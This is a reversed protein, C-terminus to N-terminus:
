YGTFKHIGPPTNAEHGTSENDFDEESTWPSNPLIVSEDDDGNENLIPEPTLSATSNMNILASNDHMFPIIDDMDIDVIDIGSIDSFGDNIDFEPLQLQYDLEEPEDLQVSVRMLVIPEVDNPKVYKLALGCDDDSCDMKRKLHNPIEQRESVLSFHKDENSVTIPRNETLRINYLKIYIGRFDKDVVRGVVTDCQMCLVYDDDLVCNTCDAFVAHVESIGCIGCFQSFVSLYPESTFLNSVLKM